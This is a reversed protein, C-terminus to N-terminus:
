ALGSSEMGFLTNLATIQSKVQSASINEIGGLHLVHVVVPIIYKGSATRQFSSFDMEQKAAEWNAEFQGYSELFEPHQELFLRINNGCRHYEDTTQGFSATGLVFCAAITLSLKKGLLKQYFNLKM